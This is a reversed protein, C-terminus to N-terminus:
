TFSRDTWGNRAKINFIRLITSLHTFRTCSPYISKESDDKLSDYMHAGKFNEEGIDDIM